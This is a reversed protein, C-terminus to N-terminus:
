GAATKEEEEENNQRLKYEEEIKEQVVHKLHCNRRL